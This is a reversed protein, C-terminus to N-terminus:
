SRKNRLKTGHESFIWEATDSIAESKGLTLQRSRIDPNEKDESNLTLQRREEMAGLTPHLGSSEGATPKWHRVNAPPTGYPQARLAQPM